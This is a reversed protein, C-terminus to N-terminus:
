FYKGYKGSPYYRTGLIHIRPTIGGSGCMGGFMFPKVEGYHYHPMTVHEAM